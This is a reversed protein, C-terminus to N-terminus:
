LIYSKENQGTELEDFCIEPYKAIALYTVELCMELHM